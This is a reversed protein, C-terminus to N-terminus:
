GPVGVGAIIRGLWPPAEGPAIRALIELRRAQRTELTLTMLPQPRAVFQRPSMGILATFERILHSQDYYRLVLAEAENQDAVGRLHSAMDLARARRLVHKPTVGFDRRVVRELQRIEVGCDDAVQAVSISPNAYSAREFAVSVPDPPAANRAAILGRLATEMRQCWEEPGAEPTFMAFWDDHAIGIQGPDTLRDVSDREAMGGLMRVAGPCFQVGVSTFGGSVSVPMRRSQPGFLIVDRGRPVPGDASQAEWAGDLQVRLAAAESFLGCSLELGPPLAVSSVYLRAIWPTLDAAPARSYSLPQGNRAVASRPALSPDVAPVLRPSASRATGAKHQEVSRGSKNGAIGMGRGQDFQEFYTLRNCTGFRFLAHDARRLRHHGQRLPVQRVSRETAKVQFPPTAMAAGM